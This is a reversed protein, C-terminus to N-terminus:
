KPFLFISNIYYYLTLFPIFWVYVPIQNNYSCEISFLPFIVHRIDILPTNRSLVKSGIPIINYSYMNPLLIKIEILEIMRVKNYKPAIKFLVTGFLLDIDYIM